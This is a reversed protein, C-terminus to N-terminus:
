QDADPAPPHGRQAGALITGAIALAGGVIFGAPPYCLWAGYAVSAAGAIMGCDQIFSGLAGVVNAGIRGAVSM